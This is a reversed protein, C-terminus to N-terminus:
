FQFYIFTGSPGSNTLILFLMLGYILYDFKKFREFYYNSKLLYLLHYILVPLAYLLMNLIFYPEYPISFNNFVSKVFEIVHSFQPLKFLLWAFSVFAFVGIRKFLVAFPTPKIKIKETLFRELVLALGHFGGWVAYSWAAGHWLGGLFM